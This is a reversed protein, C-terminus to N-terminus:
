STMQMASAMFHQLYQRWGNDGDYDPDSSVDDQDREQDELDKLVEAISRQKQIVAAQHDQAIEDPVRNNIEDEVSSISVSSTTSVEMVQVNRSSQSATPEEPSSDYEVESEGEGLKFKDLVKALDKPVKNYSEETEIEPEAAPLIISEEHNFDILGQFTGESVQNQIM